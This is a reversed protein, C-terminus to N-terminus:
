GIYIKESFSFVWRHDLLTESEISTNSLNHGQLNYFSARAANEPHMAGRGQSIEPMGSGDDSPAAFSQRRAKKKKGGRHDKRKKRTPGAEPPRLTSNSAAAPEPHAQIATPDPRVPAPERPASTPEAAKPPLAGSM